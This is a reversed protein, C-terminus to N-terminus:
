ITSKILLNIKLDHSGKCMIINQSIYINKHVVNLNGVIAALQFESSYVVEEFLSLLSLSLSVHIHLKSNSLKLVHKQAM